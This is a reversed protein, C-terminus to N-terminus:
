LFVSSCSCWRGLKIYIGRNGELILFPFCNDYYGALHDHFPRKWLFIVTIIGRNRVVIVLDNDRREWEHHNVELVSSNAMSLAKRGTVSSIEGRNGESSVGVLETKKGLNIRASGEVKQDSLIESPIGSIM